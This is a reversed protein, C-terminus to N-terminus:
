VINLDLNAVVDKAHQRWDQYENWKVSAGNALFENLLELQRDLPYHYAIIANKIAEGSLENTYVSDFEYVIRGDIEKQEVDFNCQYQGNVLEVGIPEYDLLNRM